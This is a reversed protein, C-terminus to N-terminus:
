RDHCTPRIAESERWVGAAGTRNGAAGARSGRKWWNQLRMGGGAPSFSSTREDAQDLGRERQDHAPGLDDIRGVVASMEVLTAVM